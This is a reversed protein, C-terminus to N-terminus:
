NYSDGTITSGNGASHYGTAIASAVGSSTHGSQLGCSAYVDGTVNSMSDYTAYYLGSYRYSFVVEVDRDVGVADLSTSASGGSSSCSCSAYATGYGSEFSRYSPYISRTSKASNYTAMACCCMLMTAALVVALIRFTKKMTFFEKLATINLFDFSLPSSRNTLSLNMSEEGPGHSEGGKWKRAANM